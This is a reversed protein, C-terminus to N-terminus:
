LHLIRKSAIQSMAICKVCIKCNHTQTRNQSVCHGFFCIKRLIGNIMCLFLGSVYLFNNLYFIYYFDVFIQSQNISQNVLKRFAKNMKLSEALDIVSTDLIEAITKPNRQFARTFTYGKWFWLFLRKRTLFTPIIWM